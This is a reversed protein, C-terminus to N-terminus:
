ETKTKRRKSPVKREEIVCGSAIANMRNLEARKRTRENIEEPTCLESPM